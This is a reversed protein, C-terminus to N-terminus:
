CTASTKSLLSYYFAISYCCPSCSEKKKQHTVLLKWWMRVASAENMWDLPNRLQRREWETQRGDVREVNNGWDKVKYISLQNASYITFKRANGAIMPYDWGMQRQRDAVVVLLLRNSNVSHQGTYCWSEQFGNEMASSVALRNTPIEMIERWKIYACEDRARWRSRDNTEWPTTAWLPIDRSEKRKEYIETPKSFAKM